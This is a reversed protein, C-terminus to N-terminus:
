VSKCLQPAPLGGLDNGGLDLEDVARPEPLIQGTGGPFGESDQGTSLSWTKSAHWSGCSSNRSERSLTSPSAGIAKPMPLWLQLKDPGSPVSSCLQMLVKSNEQGVQELTEQGRPNDGQLLEAPHSVIKMLFMLQDMQQRRRAIQDKRGQRHAQGFREAKAAELELSLQQCELRLREAELRSQREAEPLWAEVQLAMQGFRTAKEHAHGMDLRNGQLWKSCDELVQQADAELSTCTSASARRGAGMGSASAMWPAQPTLTQGHRMSYGLGKSLPLPEGDGQQWAKPVLGDLSGIPAQAPRNQLDM